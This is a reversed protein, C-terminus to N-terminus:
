YEARLSLGQLMYYEMQEAVSEMKRYLNEAQEFDREIIARTLDLTYNIYLYLYEVWVQASWADNLRSLFVAIEDTTQYWDNLNAEVIYQETRFM